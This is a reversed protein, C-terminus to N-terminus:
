VHELTSAVLLAFVPVRLPGICGCERLEVVKGCSDALERWQAPTRHSGAAPLPHLRFLNDLRDAARALFGPATELAVVRRGIRLAEALLRSHLAHPLRHLVGRLLVVDFSLSAFGTHEVSQMAAFRLNCRLHPRMDAGWMMCGTRRAVAQAVLGDGCLLDLVAEGEGVYGALLAAHNDVSNKMM